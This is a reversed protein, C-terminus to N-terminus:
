SDDDSGRPIRFDARKAGPRTPRKIQRRPAEKRGGPVDVPAPHDDESDRSGYERQLEAIREEQLEVPKRVARKMQTVAHRLSDTNSKVQRTKLYEKIFADREPEIRNRYISKGEETLAYNFVGGYRDRQRTIWREREAEEALARIVSTRSIGAAAPHCYGGYGAKPPLVQKNLEEALFVKRGKSDAHRRQNTGDPGVKFQEHEVMFAVLAWARRGVNEYFENRALTELPLNVRKPM